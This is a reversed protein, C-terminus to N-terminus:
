QASDTYYLEMKNQRRLIKVLLVVSSILKALTSQLTMEGPFAASREIVHVVGNATIIDSEIIRSGNIFVSGSANTTVFLKTNGATLLERGPTLAVSYLVPGLVVSNAVAQSSVASTNALASNQPVFVTVDSTNQYLFSSQSGNLRTQFYRSIANIGLVAGTDELSYPPAM